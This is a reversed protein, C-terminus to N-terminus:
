STYYKCGKMKEYNSIGLIEVGMKKAVDIWTNIVSKPCIILPKLKLLYCCAITTYTKGTGTDSADLVCDVGQLCEYLQYVHPIQYSLLSDMPDKKKNKINQENDEM